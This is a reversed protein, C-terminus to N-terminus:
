RAQGLLQTLQTECAVVSGDFLLDILRTERAQVIELFHQAGEGQRGMAAFTDFGAELFQQLAGLGALNAPRRMMKLMLRLGPTRTLRDLEQGIRIVTTLQAYRDARRDVVRWAAIYRTVENTDPHQIVQQAMALDLAESLRHVQALAVATQVVQQPFLRELTGAIRAFQADRGSYDKASYLEELFFRAAARYRDTDLLDAYTGAFRRAQLQKIDSVARALGPTAAAIQRLQGVHLVADRITHTADM